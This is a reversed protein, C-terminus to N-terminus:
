WRILEIHVTERAPQIADKQVALVRQVGRLFVDDGGDRLAELLAVADQQHTLHPNPLGSLAACRCDGDSGARDLRKLVVDTRIPHRQHDAWWVQNLLPFAFQEADVRVHNDLSNVAM